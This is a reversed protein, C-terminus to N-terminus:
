YELFTQNYNISNESHLKQFTVPNNPLLGSLDFLDTKDDSYDPEEGSVALCIQKHSKVRVQLSCIEKISTELHGPLLQGTSLYLVRIKSEDGGFFVFHFIRHSSRIRGIGLDGYNKVRKCTKGGTHVKFKHLYDMNDAAYLSGTDEDYVLTSIYTYFSSSSWGFKEGKGNKLNEFILFSADREDVGIVHKADDLVVFNNEYYVGFKSASVNIPQVKTEQDQNMISDISFVRVQSADM